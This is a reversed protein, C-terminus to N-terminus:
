ELSLSPITKSTQPESQPIGNIPETELSGNKIKESVQNFLSDATAGISEDGNKTALDRAKGFNELATDLEGEQEALQGLNLYAAALNPDIKIAKYLEEHATDFDNNAIAAWGLLNHGMASDPHTEAAKRALELAETPLKLHNIALAMPRVFADINSPDTLVADKYIPYAKAYDGTDFYNEAIYQKALSVPRWGFKISAEFDTISELNKGLKKNSVGRFFYIAPHSSDLAVAKTLSKEAETLIDENLQSHGLIIWADRYTPVIKIVNKALEIALGYQGIQDFTQALKTELFEIASGRALEFDRYNDLVKQSNAKLTEDTGITMSQKLLEKAKDQENLFASILGLLYTTEQSQPQIKEIEVRAEVAKGLHLLSQILKMQLSAQPALTMALTYNQMAVGYDKKEFSIDGIKEYPLPNKPELQSANQYMLLAAEQYTQNGAIKPRKVKQTAVVEQEVPIGDPTQASQPDGGFIRLLLAIIIIAM